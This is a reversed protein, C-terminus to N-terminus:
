GSQSACGGWGRREEEDRSFVRRSHGQNQGLQEGPSWTSQKYPPPLPRKFTNSKSSSSCPHSRLGSAKHFSINCSKCALREYNEFGRRKSKKGGALVETYNLINMPIFWMNNWKTKTKKCRPKKKKIAPFDGDQSLSPLSLLSKHTMMWRDSITSGM